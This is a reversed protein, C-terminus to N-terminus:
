TTRMELAVVLRLSEPWSLQPARPSSVTYNEWGDTVPTVFDAKIHAKFEVCRYCTDPVPINPVELTNRLGLKPQFLASVRELRCPTSSVYTLPRLLPLCLKVPHFGASKM